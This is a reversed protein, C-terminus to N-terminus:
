KRESWLIELRAEIEALRRQISSDGGAGEHKKNQFISYAVFAILMGPVGLVRGMETIAAILNPDM